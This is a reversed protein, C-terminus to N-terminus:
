IERKFDYLINKKTNLICFFQIDGKKKFTYLYTPNYLIDSSEKLYGRGTSQPAISYALQVEMM